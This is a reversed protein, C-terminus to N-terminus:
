IELSAVNGAPALEFNTFVFSHATLLVKIAFDPDAHSLKLWEELQRSLEEESLNKIHLGQLQSFRPSFLFFQYSYWPGYM